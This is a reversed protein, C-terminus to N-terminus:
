VLSSIHVHVTQIRYAGNRLGISSTGLYYSSMSMGGAWFIMRTSANLISHLRNLQGEPLGLPISSSFGMRSLIFSRALHVAVGTSLYRRIERINRLQLYCM